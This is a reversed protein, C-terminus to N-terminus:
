AATNTKPADLAWASRNKSKKIYSPFFESKKVFYTEFMKGANCARLFHKFASESIEQLVFRLIGYRRCFM